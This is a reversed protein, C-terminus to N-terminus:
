TPMISVTRCLLCSLVFTMPYAPDVTLMSWALALDGAEPTGREYLSDILDQINAQM